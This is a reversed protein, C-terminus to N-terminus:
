IWVHSSPFGYSQSSPGKNVFYHRQKKIHQRPKDYSKKWHALTKQHNLIGCATHHLLFFFLFFFFKIDNKLHVHKLKFINSFLSLWWRLRWCATVDFTESWQLLYLLLSFIQCMALIVLIHWLSAFHAFSTPFISSYVQQICPKGLGEVTDVFCSSAFLLLVLYAKNNTNIIFHKHM